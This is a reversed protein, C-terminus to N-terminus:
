YEHLIKWISSLDKQDLKPMRRGRDTKLLQHHRYGYAVM